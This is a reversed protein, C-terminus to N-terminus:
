KVAEESNFINPEFKFKPPPGWDITEEEDDARELAEERVWWGSQDPIHCTEHGADGAHGGGCKALDDWSVFLLDGKYGLLTGRSGEHLGDNHDCRSPHVLVVRQRERFKKM